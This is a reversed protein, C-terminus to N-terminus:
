MYLKHSMIFSEVSEPLLSGVPLGERLRERVMTASVDVPTLRLLYLRRGGKLEGEAMERNGSDLEELESGKIGRIGAFPGSKISAISSFSHGPRSMVCFDAMTLLRGYDKWLPMQLFSDLGLMFVFADEPFLASLAGITDVTYSKGRTSAEADSLEFRPEHAIALEVMRMREEFGALGSEKLPPTGAPVFLVRELGLVHASLAEGAAGLHGNHVPNFTGGFVGTRM